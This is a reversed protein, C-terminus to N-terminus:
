AVKLENLQRKTEELEKTLSDLQTCSELYTKTLAFLKEDGAEKEVMTTLWRQTTAELDSRTVDENRHNEALQGQLHTNYEQM